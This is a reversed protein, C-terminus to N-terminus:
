RRLQWHCWFEIRELLAGWWTEIRKWYRTEEVDHEEEYWRKPVDELLLEVTSYHPPAYYDDEDRYVLAAEVARQLAGNICCPTSSGEPWSEPLTRLHELESLFREVDLKIFRKGYGPPYVRLEVQKAMLTEEPDNAQM